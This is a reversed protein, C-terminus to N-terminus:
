KGATRWRAQLDGPVPRFTNASGTELAEQYDRLLRTGATIWTSLPYTEIPEFGGSELRYDLRVANDLRVVQLGIRRPAPGFLRLKIRDIVDVCRRAVRPDEQIVLRRALRLGQELIRTRLSPASGPAKALILGSRRPPSVPAPRSPGSRSSGSRSSRRRPRPM